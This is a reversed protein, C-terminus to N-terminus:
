YGEGLATDIAQRFTRLDVGFEQAIDLAEYQPLEGLVADDLTSAGDPSRLWELLDQM